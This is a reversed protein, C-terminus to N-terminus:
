PVAATAQMRQQQRDCTACGEWFLPDATPTPSIQTAAPMLRSAGYALTFGIIAFAIFIAITRM